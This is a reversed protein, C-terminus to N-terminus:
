YHKTKDYTEPNDLSQSKTVLTTDPIHEKNQLPGWTLDPIQQSNGCTKHWWQELM